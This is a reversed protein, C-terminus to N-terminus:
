CDDVVTGAAFRKGQFMKSGGVVALWSGDNCTPLRGWCGRAEAWPRVGEAQAVEDLKQKLFIAEDLTKCHHIALPPQNTTLQNTPLSSHHNIISLVHIM